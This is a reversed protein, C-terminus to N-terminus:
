KAMKQNWLWIVLELANYFCSGDSIGKGWKGFEEVTMKSRLGSFNTCAKEYTLPDMFVFWTLVAVIDEFPCAMKQGTVFPPHALPLYKGQPLGCLFCYEYNPLRIMKKLGWWGTANDVFRPDQSQRCHIFFKHDLTKTILEDKKAWCVYCFGNLFNTM